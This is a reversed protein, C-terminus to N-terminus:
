PLTTMRCCPACVVAGSYPCMDRMRRAAFRALVHALALRDAVDAHRAQGGTRMQVVFEADVARMAIRQGHCQGLRLRQGRDFQRTEFAFVAGCSALSLVSSAVRTASAFFYRARTAARRKIESQNRAGAGVADVDRQRTEIRRRTQVGRDGVGIGRIAGACERVRAPRHRSRARHVRRARRPSRATNRRHPSCAAAARLRRPSRRDGREARVALRHAMTRRLARGIVICSPSALMMASRGADRRNGIKAAAIDGGATLARREGGANWAAISGRSAWVRTTSLRPPMAFM